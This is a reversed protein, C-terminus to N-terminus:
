NDRVAKFDGKKEGQTWEGVLSRRPSTVDRITADITVQATGDTRDKCMSEFHFQWNAPDFATKEVPSLRTDPNM